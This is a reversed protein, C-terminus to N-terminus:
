DQDEGFDRPQHASLRVRSLAPSKGHVVFFFESGDSLAFLDAFVLAVHEQAKAGIAARGFDALGRPFHQLLFQLFFVERNARPGVGAIAGLDVAQADTGAPRDHDDIGFSRPVASHGRVANRTENLLMQDFPFRDFLPNERSVWQRMRFGIRSNQLQKCNLAFRSRLRQLPPMRFMPSSKESSNGFRNIISTTLTSGNGKEFGPSRVPRRWSSKGRSEVITFSGM